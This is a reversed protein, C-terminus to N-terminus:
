NPPPFRRTVRSDDGEMWWNDLLRLLRDRDASRGDVAALNVNEDPDQQLDYLSLPLPNMAPGPAVLKLNAFRVWRGRVHRSPASLVEADNGYIAGFVPGDELAEAGTAAPM